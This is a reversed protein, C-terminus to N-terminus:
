HQARTTVDQLHVPPNEPIVKGVQHTAYGARKLVAALGTMPRPIGAFGSIPDAPNYTAPDANVVNVHVPLRGSQFSSRTPSCVQYTDPIIPVLSSPSLASSLSLSLSSLALSRSLSRSLSLILSRSETALETAAM